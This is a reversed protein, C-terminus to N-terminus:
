ERSRRSGVDMQVWHIYKGTLVWLSGCVRQGMTEQISPRVSFSDPNAWRKSLGACSMTGERMESVVFTILVRLVVLMGSYAIKAVRKTFYRYSTIGWASLM